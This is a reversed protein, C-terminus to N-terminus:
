FKWGPAQPQPNPPDNAENKSDDKNPLTKPDQDDDSDSDSEDSDFFSKGTEEEEERCGAVIDSKNLCILMNSWREAMMDQLTRLILAVM